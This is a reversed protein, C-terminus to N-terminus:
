FSGYQLTTTAKESFLFSLPSVRHTATSFFVSKSDPTDKYAAASSASGTRQSLPRAGQALGTSTWPSSAEKIAGNTLREQSQATDVATYNRREASSGTAEIVRWHPM